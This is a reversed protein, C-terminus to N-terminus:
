RANAMAGAELRLKKHKVGLALATRPVAFGKAEGERELDRWKGSSRLDGFEDGMPKKAFDNIAGEAANFPPGGM